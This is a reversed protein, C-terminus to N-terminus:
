TTFLAELKSSRPPFWRFRWVKTTHCSSCSWSPTVMADRPNWVSWLDRHMWSPRLHPSQAQFSINTQNARKKGWGRAIERKQKQENPNHQKVLEWTSVTARWPVKYGGGTSQALAPNNHKSTAATAHQTHVHAHTHSTQLARMQKGNSIRDRVM